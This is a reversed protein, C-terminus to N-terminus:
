HYKIYGITSIDLKRWNLREPPFFSLAGAVATSKGSIPDGVALTPLVGGIIKSLLTYYFSM